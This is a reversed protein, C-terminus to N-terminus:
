GFLSALPAGGALRIPSLGPACCGLGPALGSAMAALAGRRPHHAM